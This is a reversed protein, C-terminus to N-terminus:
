LNSLYNTVERYIELIEAINGIKLDDFKDINSEEKILDLFDRDHTMFIWNLPSNMLINKQNHNLSKYPTTKFIDILHIAQNDLYLPFYKNLIRQGVSNEVQVGSIISNELKKTQLINTLSLSNTLLESLDNLSINGILPASNTTEQITFQTKLDESIQNFSEIFEDSELFTKAKDQGGLMAFLGSFDVNEM